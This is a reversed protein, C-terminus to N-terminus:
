NTKVLKLVKKNEGNTIVVSYIGPSLQPNSVTFESNSITESLVLKGIMDYINISIKENVVNSIEFVFDGSSPNPSVKVKFANEGVGESEGSKCPVTVTVGTSLKACGYSNIVKIKYTGAITATYNKTTAGPIDNGGKKWQYTFGAGYNGSLLVSGGACFTTPGQPTITAPPSPNVTVTTPTATTKSCGTVTNTVIVRYNGGTTATYSSLTAGPIINAGKKWQYTKNAGFPVSLLVSNGSCFTTPGAPTITASPISNVTVMTASSTASGCPNTVVVTYSGATIATFASNTAGSINTGNMKWQYTYGTGPPTILQVSEGSCFTTSSGATITAVPSTYVTIWNSFVAPGYGCFTAYDQAWMSYNGAQTAIYSDSIAGAIPDGDRYWQFSPQNYMGNNIDYLTVSGGACLMTTGNAAIKGFPSVSLIPDNVNYFPSTYSGCTNTVTVKYNGNHGTMFDGYTADPILFLDEFWQFTNGSIIQTQLHVVTSPCFVGGANTITPSLPSEVSISVQSSIAICTGSTIEVKYNGTATATYTQSTAGTINVSNKKWQYTYGTGSTASLLVNGGNCFTTPGGPTIVAYPTCYCGSIYVPDAADATNVTGLFGDNNQATYDNFLQGANDNMRWYGKLGTENGTLFSNRANQIQTQTRAINWFRVEHILGKFFSSAFPDEKGIWINHNSNISGYNYTSTGILAADIYLSVSNSASRVLAIHHCLNDRLDFNGAYIFTFVGQICFTAIGNGSLFLQLGTTTGNATDRNSFICPNTSTQSTAAKIWVELTFNGFGLDYAPADAITCRDDIGDFNLGLNGTQATVKLLFVIAMLSLILIKKM